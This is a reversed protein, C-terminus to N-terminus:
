VCRRGRWHARDACVRRRGTLWSESARVDVM